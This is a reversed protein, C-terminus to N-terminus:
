ANEPNIVPAATEDIREELEDQKEKAAEVGADVAATVRGRLEDVRSRAQEVIGDAGGSRHGNQRERACPSSVRRDRRGAYETAREGVKRRAEVGAMPAYLLAAAAGILGGIVLGLAFDRSNSNSSNNSDSM